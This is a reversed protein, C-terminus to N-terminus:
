KKTVPPLKFYSGLEFDVSDPTFQVCGSWPYFTLEGVYIKENLSYFDVRVFPFDKAIDKAVELMKDLGYPKPIPKDSKTRNSTIDLVNWDMDFFARKHDVGRDVDVWLVKPEGNFCLFKYDNLSEKQTGDHSVLLEEVVIKPEIDQYAWERGASITKVKKWGAAEARVKELDMEAKNKIFVNTGSSNNSKIAFSEPLKEFDIEDFNDCVQYLEPSLEEYGKDKLYFRIKYKDACQTMLPTRYNLKYWQLKETFRQPNKM